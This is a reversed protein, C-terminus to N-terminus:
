GGYNQDGRKLLFIFFPGGVVSMIIAASIEYPAAILRGATDAALMIFAGLLASFPILYKHDNGVLIRGMHPVILGLFSVTGCVATTISALLVAVLSVALRIVTVNVGLGRVTKDELALLNAMKHVVMAAILGLVVYYTLLKVDGWTKMAINADVISAVGSVTSSSMAGVAELLGTFVANVAVGVLILRLPSFGDKWALSYVLVCALCGGAFAFLPSFFYLMPFFATVIVAACGAGASIGIIGPDALPNKMVAQFLVGSVALAAGALLAILIRPFRLDYITAVTENYEVFLGRLLEGYSVHLSGQNCSFLFLGVTMISLVAFCLFRKWGMYDTTMTQQKKMQQKMQKKM